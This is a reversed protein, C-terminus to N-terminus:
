SRARVDGSAAARGMRSCCSCRARHHRSWLRAGVGLANAYSELAGSSNGQREQVVGLAVHAQYARATATIADAFYKEAAAAPRREPVGGHRGRLRAGSGRSM